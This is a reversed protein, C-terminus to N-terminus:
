VTGGLSLIEDKVQQETAIKKVQTVELEEGQSQKVKLDEIAKLKKALNRLKKAVAEDVGNDHVKLTTMEDVPPENERDGNAEGDKDKIPRKSRVRKKKEEGAGSPNPAGPISNAGPVYRQSPKGGKFMPTLPEYTGNEDRKYADSAVTGRAGPPRYAGAPKSDGGNSTEGKPRLLAVSENPEPAPPLVAPFPQVGSPNSPQFSVQYLEDQLHINLLQGGCWWIKVGNDVRLRPSLTATLIYRGCASWECHSSNAAKFEAVKNRTSIDWVDVGGALNGFGATILLRGQPQYLLLNRHQAGFSHQPKAKLDYLQVRAPMYGYCVAFERSTPNWGFDYIPGEKDLDVMSDFSGDVSLLYLNTEGYYSKGSQDVDTHTLFLAMTGAANWKVSLKDAKYFAKRATTLPIDRTETKGEDGNDKKANGLLSSMTYLAVSAPAGKREGLWVAIAPESAPPVPKASTTGPPLASPSSLFVGKINGDIKLRTTPRPSLPPTFILIDSATPRILHTEDATILPEWDDYTKQYWGGVENGTKVDWAKVNKHVETDSKIPREFTFLTTSLPSFALAMVNPHEIVRAPESSSSSSPLLQVNTPTAYAFWDGDTSYVCSKIGVSGSPIQDTVQWSPGASLGLTKQARFAYQPYPM